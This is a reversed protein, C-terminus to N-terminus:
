LMRVKTAGNLINKLETQPLNYTGTDVSISFSLYRFDLQKKVESPLTQYNKRNLEKCLKLDTLKFCGKYFDTIAKIRQFGDIVEYQSNDTEFLIIPPYPINIILSEIFSSQKKVNWSTKQILHYNTKQIFSDLEFLVVRQAFNVFLSNISLFKANIEADTIMPQEKFKIIFSM